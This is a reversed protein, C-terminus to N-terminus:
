APRVVPARRHCRAGEVRRERDASAGSAASRLRAPHHRRSRGPDRSGRRLVACPHDSNGGAGAKNEIIVTGGIIEGLHKSLIRAMIDTPGALAFPVIIKITREPYTKACAPKLLLGPAALAGMALGASRLMARRSPHAFKRESM